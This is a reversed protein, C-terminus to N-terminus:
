GDLRTLSASLREEDDAPDLIPRGAQRCTEAIEALMDPSWATGSLIEAIHDLAAVPKLTAATEHNDGHEDCKRDGSAYGPRGEQECEQEECPYSGAAVWADRIGRERGLEEGYVLMRVLAGQPQALPATGGQALFRLLGDFTREAAEVRGMGLERVLRSLEDDASYRAIDPM